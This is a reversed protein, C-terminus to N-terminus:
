PAAGALARAWPEEAERLLDAATRISLAFGIGESTRKDTTWTNIGVLAGDRAYLGGGSNGPNIPAQTQLVLVRRTGIEAVRISSVVGATYTARYGYPNGVAFVPDGIAPRADAQLPVAEVPSDSALALVALDIGDPATWVLRAAGGKGDGLVARIEARGAAAPRSFGPDAFAPDVVHRNTLVLVEGAHRGVVVGSGTSVRAAGLRSGEGCTVSVNARIARRIPPAAGEIGSPDDAGSGRIAAPVRSADPDPPRGLMWWLVASWGLLDAVGLLLGAVAIRIGKLEERDRIAAIAFAGCLIAVPGWLVGVLPIGVLGTALSAIALRSTRPLPPTARPPPAGAARPAAPPPAARAIEDYDVRIAGPPPDGPPPDAGSADNM